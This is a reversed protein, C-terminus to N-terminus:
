SLHNPNISKYYVMQFLLMLILHHKMQDEIELIEEKSRKLDDSNM